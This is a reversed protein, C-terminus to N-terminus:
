GVAELLRQVFDLLDSHTMRVAYAVFPVSFLLLFFGIGIRFAFGLIFINMEPVTKALFGLGVTTLFIAVMAPAGVKVTFSYLYQGLETPLQEFFAPNYVFGMPEVLQFSEAFVSLFELHGEMAIWVVLAFLFHVQGLLSVQQQTVPDLVNAMAMGMQRDVFSGAVQFASFIITAITGFLLGISVEELIGMLYVGLSAPPYPIEGMPVTPFLIFSIVMATLIRIRLPISGLGFVPASSFFAGVRFFVLSFVFVQQHTLEFLSM